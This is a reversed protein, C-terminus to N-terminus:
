TYLRLCHRQQVPKTLPRPPNSQLVIITSAFESFSYIDLEEDDIEPGDDIGRDDDDHIENQSENSQSIQELNVESEDNMAVSSDEGDSPMYDDDGIDDDSWTTIIYLGVDEDSDSAEYNIPITSTQSSTKSQEARELARNNVRIFLENRM